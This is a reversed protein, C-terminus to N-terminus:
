IDLTRGGNINFVQATISPKDLLNIIFDAVSEVMAPTGPIRSKIEEIRKKTQSSAMGIANGKKDLMIGPRIVNCSIKRGLGQRAISLMAKEAAGKAMIYPVQTPEGGKAAVSSIYIINKFNDNNNKEWINYFYQILLFPGIAHDMIADIIIDKSFSGFSSSYLSGSTIIISDIQNIMEETFNKELEFEIGKKIDINFNKYIVKYKESNKKNNSICSKKNGRNLGYVNFNKKLLKNTLVSGLGGTDGVIVVNKNM